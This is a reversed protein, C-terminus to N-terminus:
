ILIFHTHVTTTLIFHLYITYYAGTYFLYLM